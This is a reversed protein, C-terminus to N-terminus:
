AVLVETSAEIKLTKQLLLRMNKEETHQHIISFFSFAVIIIMM